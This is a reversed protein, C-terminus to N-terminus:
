VGWKAKHPLAREQKFGKIDLLRPTLVCNSAPQTKSHRARGRLREKQDQKGKNGRGRIKRGECEEM